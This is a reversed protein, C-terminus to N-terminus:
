KRPKTINAEAGYHPMVISPLSQENLLAKAVSLWQDGSAGTCPINLSYALANATTIGIRLGTFSGPGSYVVIGSLSQLTLQNKQLLREIQTLLTDSLKRHAQWKFSDALRDEDYLYLEAEPKDTRLALIM